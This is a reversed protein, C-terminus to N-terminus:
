KLRGLAIIAAPLWRLDRLYTRDSDATEYEVALAVLAIDGTGADTQLEFSRAPVPDNNYIFSFQNTCLSCPAPVNRFPSTVAVLKINVKMTRLPVKLINKPLFEPIDIAIKGNGADSVAINVRFCDRLDVIKNLQCMPTQKTSMEWVPEDKHQAYLNRLWGRVQNYVALKFPFLFVGKMQKTMASGNKSVLGFIENLKNRPDNKKRGQRVPRARVYNNGDMTYFVVNGVLGKIGENTVRAM